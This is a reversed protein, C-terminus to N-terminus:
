TDFLVNKLYRPNGQSFSDHIPGPQHGGYGSEHGLDQHGLGEHHHGGLGGYNGGYHGGLHGLLGVGGLGLGLGSAM